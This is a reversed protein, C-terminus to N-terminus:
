IKWLYYKWQLEKYVNYGVPLLFFVSIISYMPVANEILFLAAVMGATAFVLVGDMVSFRYQIYRTTKKRGYGRANMSMATEASDELMVSLLVSLIIGAKKVSGPNERLGYTGWVEKIKHIKTVFKDYYCFVMSIVLGTVPLRAGILYTIKRNDFVDQFLRFWMFMASIMVGMYVGYLLADATLARGNIYLLPTDGAPNFLMNFLGMVVCIGVHMKLSKLYSVMGLCCVYNLSVLVYIVLMKEDYPVIMILILELILHLAVAAPHLQRIYNTM